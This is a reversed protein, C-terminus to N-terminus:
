SYKKLLAEFDTKLANSDDILGRVLNSDRRLLVDRAVGVAIVSLPTKVREAIGMVKEAFVQIEKRESGSLKRPALQQAAFWLASAIVVVGIGLVVLPVFMIAWWTSVQVTLLVVLVVLVLWIVLIMLGIKRILSQAFASSVARLLGVTGNM